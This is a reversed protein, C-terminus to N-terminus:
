SAAKAVARLISRYGTCRCLNNAVLDRIGDEKVSADQQTLHWFALVLMGPTCFGCQFANESLFAADLRAKLEGDLHSLGEVTTIDHGAAQAALVMCSRVPLGDMLVTCAGCVGHECPDHTGTLRADNRIVDALTRNDPEDLPVPSGNVTLSRPTM